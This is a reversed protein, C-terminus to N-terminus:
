DFGSLGTSLSLCGLGVGDIGPLAFDGIQHSRSQDVIRSVLRSILQDCGATQKLITSVPLISEGLALGRWHSNSGNAFRAM